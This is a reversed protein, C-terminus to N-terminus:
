HINLNNLLIDIDTVDTPAKIFTKLADKLFEVGKDTSHWLGTEKVVKKLILDMVVTDDYITFLKQIEPRLSMNHVKNIMDIALDYATNM